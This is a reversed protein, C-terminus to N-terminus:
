SGNIYGRGPVKRRSNKDTNPRVVKKSCQKECVIYYPFYKIESAANTYGDM